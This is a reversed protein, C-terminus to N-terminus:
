PLWRKTLGCGLITRPPKGLREVGEAFLVGMGMHFHSELHCHFPWVGAFLSISSNNLSECLIFYSFGSNIIFMNNNRGLHQLFSAM